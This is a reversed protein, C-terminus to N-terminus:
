AFFADELMLCLCHYVPLQYEQVKFVETEPVKICVDTKENLAGGTEGALGIAKMGKRRAVDAAHLVNASNGSTSICLVADGPKGLAWTLQAFSYDPDCDNGYATLLSDFAPLPIVPLGGQLKSALEKGLINQAEADLPRSRAFGKLMEASIHNSDAASGGNGCVLLQGQNSFVDRLTNFAAEIDDHCCNLAPYREMLLDLHANVSM